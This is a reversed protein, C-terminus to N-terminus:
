SWRIVAGLLDPMQNRNIADFLAPAEAADVVHSITRRWPLAGSAMLKVVARRCPALGDNCPYFATLEKGHPVLFHYSIPAAGYNGLFVFRGRHRCLQFATDLFAPVGTGEFVVDAGQPVLARVQEAVDGAGGDIVHDVGLERALQLRAPNIDVGLTVAGRLGAALLAGLGIPGMGHVVVTDGVAVGAMSVANFGVAPMVFMASAIEDAGAPLHAVGEATSPDIVAVSCHTGAATTAQADGRQMRLYNRRYYVTDDVAYGQVGAGVARVVGVAQYGTCLPFPGWDLRGRILAFETGVSVGSYRTEVLMESPQLSPIPFTELTFQQDPTCILAQATTPQTDNRQDM